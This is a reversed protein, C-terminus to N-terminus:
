REPSCGIQCAQRVLDEEWRCCYGAAELAALIEPARQPDFFLCDGLQRTAGRCGFRGCILPPLWRLMAQEPREPWYGNVAGPVHEIHFEDHDLPMRKGPQLAEYAQWLRDREARTDQQARLRYFVDFSLAGREMFTAVLEPLRQAPMKLKFEGWTRARLAAAIAALEQAKEWPIFVLNSGGLAPVLGFVLDYRSEVDSASEASAGLSEEARETQARNERQCEEPDGQFIFAPEESALGIATAHIMAEGYGQASIHSVLHGAHFKYINWEGKERNHLVDVHFPGGCTWTYTLKRCSAAHIFTEFRPRYEAV